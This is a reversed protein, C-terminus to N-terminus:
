KWNKWSKDAMKIDKVSFLSKQQNGIIELASILKNGNTNKKYIENKDKRM